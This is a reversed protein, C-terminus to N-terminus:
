IKTLTWSRNVYWSVGGVNVGTFTLSGNANVVGKPMPSSSGTIPNSSQYQWTTIELEGCVDKFEFWYDSVFTPFYSSRYVGGGVATINFDKPGSAYSIRYNGELFSGCAVKVVTKPVNRYVKGNVLKVEYTFTWEDGINLTSDTSPMASGNFILGNALETYNYDTKITEYQQAIPFNITKFLVINSSVVSSGVKGKFQKYIYLTQVKERGQFASVSSSYRKTLPGGQEYIVSQTVNELLGGVNSENTLTDYEDRDVKDVQCSTISMMVFVSYFIYKIRKM